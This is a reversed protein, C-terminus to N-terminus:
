RCCGVALSLVCDHELVNGLKGPTIWMNQISFMIYYVVHLLYYAV